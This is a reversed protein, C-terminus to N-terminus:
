SYSRRDNPPAFDTIFRFDIVRCRSLEILQLSDLGPHNYVDMKFLEPRKEQWKKIADVSAVHDLARQLIHNDYIYIYHILTEELSERSDFQTNKPIESIRGNFREVM